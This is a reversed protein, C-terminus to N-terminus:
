HNEILIAPNSANCVGRWTANQWADQRVRLERVWKASDKMEKRDRWMGIFPEQAIDTKVVSKQPATKAYRQRLILSNVGRKLPFCATIAAFRTLNYCIM